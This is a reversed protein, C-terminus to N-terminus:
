KSSEIRQIEEFKRSCFLRRAVIRQWEPKSQCVRLETQTPQIEPPKLLPSQFERFSFSKCLDCPWTSPFDVRTQRPMATFRPTLITNVTKFVRTLMQLMQQMQKWMNMGLSFASLDVWLRWLQNAGYWSPASVSWPLNLHHFWEHRSNLSYKCFGFGPVIWFSVCASLRHMVVGVWKIMKHIGLKFIKSLKCSSTPKGHM